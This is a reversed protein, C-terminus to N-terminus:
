ERVIPRHRERDKLDDIRKIRTLIESSSLSVRQEEELVAIYIETTIGLSHCFKDINM